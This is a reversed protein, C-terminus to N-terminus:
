RVPNNRPSAAVGGSVVNDPEMTQSIVNCGIVFSSSKRDVASTFDWWQDMPARLGGVASRAFDHSVVGRSPMRVESDSGVTFEFTVWAQSVASHDECTLEIKGVGSSRPFTHDEDEDVPERPTLVLRFLLAEGEFSLEFSPSCHRTITSSLVESRVTWELHYSSSGESDFAFRRRLTSPDGADNAFSPHYVNQVSGEHRWQQQEAAAGQLAPWELMLGAAYPDYAIGGVPVMPVPIAVTMMM